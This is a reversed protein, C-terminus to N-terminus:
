CGKVFRVCFRVIYAYCLLLVWVFCLLPDFNHVFESFYGFVCFSSYLWVGGWFVGCVGV